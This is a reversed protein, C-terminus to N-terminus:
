ENPEDMLGIIHKIDGIMVNEANVDEIYDEEGCEGIFKGSLWPEGDNMFAKMVRFDRWEYRSNVKVEPYYDLYDMSDEDAFDYENGHAILAAKLEGIEKCHVLKLEPWFNTCKM